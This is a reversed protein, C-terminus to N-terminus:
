SDFLGSTAIPRLYRMISDDAANVSFHVTVLDRSPSVYIAQRQFGAKFMDGDPWVVDWQRCNSIMTDDNLHGVEEPGYGRMFFENSRTGNQIRSLIEETVVRERAVKDWSPTYLMAFRAMDSLRSSLMGHGVPLGEPTTHVLLPGEFGVKSWVRKDVTEGWREGTVSEALMVLVQTAVSSYDYQYGPELVKKADRLVDLFAEVKGDTNPMAFEASLMRQVVSGPKYSIGDQMEQVDLGTTMDMVDIVKIDEWASNRFEELYHGVTNQDDVRGDSILMDIILGPLVKAASMWVHNDTASMAPFNEYVIQGKHIVLFAQARSDPHVMFDDLTLTGFHKTETTIKGIKPNISKPLPAPPLRNPVIATSPFAEAPRLCVSVSADGGGLWAGLDPNNKFRKSEELTFGDKFAAVPKPTAHQDSM